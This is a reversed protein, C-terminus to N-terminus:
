GGPYNIRQSSSPCVPEPEQSIEQAQDSTDPKDNDRNAETQIETKEAAEEVSDEKTECGALFVSLLLVPFILWRRRCAGSM